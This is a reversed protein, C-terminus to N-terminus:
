SGAPAARTSASAEFDAVVPRLRSPLAGYPMLALSNRANLPIAMNVQPALATAHYAKVSTSRDIACVAAFLTTPMATESRRASFLASIM